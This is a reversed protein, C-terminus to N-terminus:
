SYSAVPARQSSVPLKKYMDRWSVLLFRLNQSAYLFCLFNPSNEEVPLLKELFVRLFVCQLHIPRSQFIINFRYSTFSLLSHMNLIGPIDHYSPRIHAGLSPSDAQTDTLHLSM